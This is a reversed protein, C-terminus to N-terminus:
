YKRNFFLLGNVLDSPTLALQRFLKLGKDLERKQIIIKSIQRAALKQNYKLISKKKVESLPCEPVEFIERLMPLQLELYGTSALGAVYEQGEHQRWFVLSSAIKVIPWRSALRLNIETDGIYRKGSFGGIKNFKESSFILGSPGTDFLGKVYFHTHYAEEPSLLFPYPKEEQNYRSCIGVAVDPFLEMAEVMVQLGHTYFIDDSDLYKIYKGRAYSAARNRNPYDGLNNENVYVKIRGDQQEYKKAIQVTNDTSCDDVIILEYNSYTSTLVSEIATGIYQERNYSTMLVSVLPQEKMNGIIIKEEFFM